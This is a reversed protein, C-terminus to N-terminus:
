QRSKMLERLNGMRKKFEVVRKAIKLPQQASILKKQSQLSMGYIFKIDSTTYPHM